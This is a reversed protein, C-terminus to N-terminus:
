QALFLYTLIASFGLVFIFLYLGINGNQIKKGQLGIAEIITSSGVVVLALSTEVSDRFIRSLVNIPKVFIKDNAEDVYYKNYLVKEFGIM